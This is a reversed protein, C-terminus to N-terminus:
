KSARRPWAWVTVAIMALSIGIQAWDRFEVSTTNFESGMKYVAAGGCIYAVVAVMVRMGFRRKKAVTYILLLPCAIALALVLSSGYNLWVYYQEASLPQGLYSQIIDNM